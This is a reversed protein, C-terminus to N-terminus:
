LSIKSIKSRTGSLPVCRITLADWSLVSSVSSFIDSNNAFVFIIPLWSISSGAIVPLLFARIAVSAILYVGIDKRPRSPADRLIKQTETISIDGTGLPSDGM